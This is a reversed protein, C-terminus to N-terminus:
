PNKETPTPVGNKVLDQYTDFEDWPMRYVGRSVNYKKGPDNTLWSPARLPMGLPGSTNKHADMFDAIDKRTIQSPRSGKYNEYAMLWNARINTMEINGIKAM